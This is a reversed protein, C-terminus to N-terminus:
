ALHLVINVYEHPSLYDLCTRPRSNILESVADLQADTVKTFDTGRPFFFRIVWNVKENIGRKWPAHVDALYVKLNLAKEIDKYDPLETGNNLTRTIPSVLKAKRFAAVLVANTVEKTKDRAIAAVTRQFQRDIVTLLCGRGISGCVTDGEYDVLRGRQDVNEKRDHISSYM